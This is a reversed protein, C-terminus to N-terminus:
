EHILTQLVIQKGEEWRVVVRVLKMGPQTPIELHVDFACGHLYPYPAPPFAPPGPDLPDSAMEGGIWSAPAVPVINPAARIREMLHKGLATANSREQSQAQVRIAATFLGIVTLLAVALLGVSLIVEALTFAGPRSSDLKM